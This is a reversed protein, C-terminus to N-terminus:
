RFKPLNLHFDLLFLLLFLDILLHLFNVPFFLPILIEGLLSLPECLVRHLHHLQILSGVQHDEGIWVEDIVSLTEPWAVTLNSFEVPLVIILQHASRSLLNIVIVM